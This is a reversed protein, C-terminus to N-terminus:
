HLTVPRRSSFPLLASAASEFRSGLRQAAIAEGYVALLECTMASASRGAAREHAAAALRHRRPEDGALEEIAAALAADDGPTVLVAAGDWLERWVPLDPLVLACGAHAAALPLRRAREDLRPHVFISARSLWGALATDSVPGLHFVSAVGGDAGPGSPAGPDGALVLPWSLEPAIRALVALNSAQDALRAGALVMPEKRGPRCLGGGCGAPVVRARGTVAYRSLLGRLETRTPSVVADAAALGEAVSQCRSWAPMSGQRAGEWTPPAGGYLSVVLPSRFGAGPVAGLVAGDLHVVQAAVREELDLLWRRVAEVAGDSGGEPDLAIRACLLEVRPHRRVERCAEAAPPPGIAALGVEVGRRGLEGALEAAVEWGDGHTPAGLLVRRVPARLQLRADPQPDALFFGDHASSLERAM